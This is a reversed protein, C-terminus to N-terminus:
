FPVLWHGTDQQRHADGESGNCGLRLRTEAGGALIDDRCQGFPVVFATLVDTQHVVTRHHLHEGVSLSTRPGDRHCHRVADGAQHCRTLRELNEVLCDNVVRGSVLFLGM